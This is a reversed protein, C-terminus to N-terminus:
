LGFNLAKLWQAFTVVTFLLETCFFLFLQVLGFFSETRFGNFIYLSFKFIFNLYNM